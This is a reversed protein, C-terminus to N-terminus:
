MLKNTGGYGPTSGVSAKKFARTTAFLVSDMISAITLVGGVIACTSTLFHAFSQRMETHVVLIPSIEFNFFAGPMGSTSHSLQVGQDTKENAGGGLNRQFNTVSYQHTNVTQGALNVFRTSVVKLFYQFMEQSNETRGGSRDLPNYDLQLRKKMERAVNAKVHHYDDDGEFAFQHISHRFDHHNEDKLYPVLDHVHHAHTQFSRGPSFHFNGVVKNVRALGAMNCGENSQEHIKDTWGEQVCQEVGQPDSFSWGRDSYSQRVEECTQCCGSPPPVGGFCSGCYAPDARVKALKDVESGLEGRTKAADVVPVQNQDLRTKVVNHSIDRQAEGSIDMIDLSLLYCPVQPFTINFRITLKQGMSRDVLISTETNIRRYDMFEISTFTLIVALSMLTLFAGTRTKIKVDEMTKGFADVSKFAGGFLGRAM